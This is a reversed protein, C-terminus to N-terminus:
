PSTANTAVRPGCTGLSLGSERLRNNFATL